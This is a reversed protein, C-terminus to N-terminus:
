PATDAGFDVKGVRLERGMVPRPVVRLLILVMRLLLLMAMRLLLLVMRLLLLAMRLLLLVMHLILVLTGLPHLPVTRHLLGLPLVEMGMPDRHHNNRLVKQGLMETRWKKERTRRRRSYVSTCFYVLVTVGRFRHWIVVIVIVDVMVVVVIIVVNSGPCWDFDEIDCIEECMDKAAKPADGSGQVEEFMEGLTKCATAGPNDKCCNTLEKYEEEDGLFAALYELAGSSDARISKGGGGSKSGAADCSVFLVAFFLTM